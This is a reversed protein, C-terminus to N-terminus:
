HPFEGIISIKTGCKKCRNDKSLNKSIINYGHREIVIANCNPCMTHSGQEMMMNGIYVNNLGVQKALNYADMLINHGTSPQNLRYMPRYASFHLPTNVGLHFKIWQIMEKIESLDDNENPIILNTIEVHINNKKFFEATDLIPQFNSIGVIKKYFENSFAKFDINVADIFKIYESNSEKSTYGNTVLINKIGEQKALIGTDKVFEFWIGPENYTYAISKSGFYKARTVIESPSMEILNFKQIGFKTKDKVSFEAISGNLDPYSQSIEWNQCHKCRFNCGITAISYVESSPWFHYLPKKEIPDISGKSICSGYVLTYLIGGINERTNCFGRKGPSIICYHSCIKCKVKKKEDTDIKEWLEALKKM